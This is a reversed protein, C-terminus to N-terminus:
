HQTRIVWFGWLAVSLARWAPGTPGGNRCRTLADLAISDDVLEGARVMQDTFVEEAFDGLRGSFWDSEATAYGLKTSRTAIRVLGASMLYRRLPAKSLGHRDFMRTEDLRLACEALEHDLYPVRAEIGFAMSNRDEYRLIGPLTRWHVDGLRERTFRSGTIRRTISEESAEAACSCAMARDRSLGMSRFGERSHRSHELKRIARERGHSMLGLAPVGSGLLGSYAHAVSGSRLRDLVWAIRHRSYGGLLEDAGQGDIMVKLKRSSAERMVCWQAYIGSTPMPEGQARVLDPLDTVLTDATPCIEAGEVGLQQVVYRAYESEDLDPATSAATIVMQGGSGGLLDSCMAVLSSSDIGGSLCSGIPVDSRLHLAVADRLTEEFDAGATEHRSAEVLSYYRRRSVRGDRFKIISGAPVQVAGHFFTAPSDGGVFGDQLFADVMSHCPELPAGGAVLGILESAFVLAGDGRKAYYLPKIGFRDRVLHLEKLVQDWVAFAYMGRLKSVCAAGYSSWAALLVEVDGTSGFSWSTRLESRLERYNYIEGNFTLMYRADPSSMPQASGDSLDIIALRRHAFAARGIAEVRSGDPGRHGIVAGISGAVRLDAQQEGAASAVIGGIGCM